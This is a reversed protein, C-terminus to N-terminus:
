TKRLILKNFEQKRNFKLDFKGNLYDYKYNLFYYLFFPYYFIKKKILSNYYIERPNEYIRTKKIIKFDKRLLDIIYKERVLSNLTYDDFMWM